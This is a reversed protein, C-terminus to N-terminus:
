HMFYLCNHFLWLVNTGHVCRWSKPWSKERLTKLYFYNANAIIIIDYQTANM